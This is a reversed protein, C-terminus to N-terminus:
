HVHFSVIDLDTQYAEGSRCGSHYLHGDALHNSPVVDLFSALSASWAGSVHYNEAQVHYQRIHIHGERLGM